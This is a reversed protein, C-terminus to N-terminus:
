EQKFLLTSVFIYCIGVFYAVDFRFGWFYVNALTWPTIVMASELEGSMFRGCRLDMPAIDLRRGIQDNVNNEGIRTTHALKSGIDLEVVVDMALPM